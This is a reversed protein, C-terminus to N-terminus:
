MFHLCNQLCILTLWLLPPWHTHKRISMCYSICNIILLREWEWEINYPLRFDLITFASSKVKGTCDHGVLRMPMPPACFINKDNGWSPQWINKEVLAPSNFYTVKAQSCDLGPPAAWLLHLLGTSGDQPHHTETEAEIVQDGTQWRLFGSSFVAAPPELIRGKANSNTQM